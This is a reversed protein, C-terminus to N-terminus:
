NAASVICIAGNQVRFPLTVPSETTLQAESERPFLLLAPPIRVGSWPIILRAPVRHEGIGCSPFAKNELTQPLKEM